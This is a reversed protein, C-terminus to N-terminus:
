NENFVERLITKAINGALLNNGKTTCHGFDGGFIDTFYDNYNGAKVAEKFSNENNVFITNGHPKLM